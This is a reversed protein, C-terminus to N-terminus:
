RAPSLPDFPARRTSTRRPARRAPPNTEAAQRATHASAEEATRQIEEEWQAMSTFEIGQGRAIEDLGQQVARRLWNLKAQDHLTRTAGAPTM